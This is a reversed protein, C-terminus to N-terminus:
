TNQQIKIGMKLKALHGKEMSRNSIAIPFYFLTMIVFETLISGFFSRGYLRIPFYFLTMVM